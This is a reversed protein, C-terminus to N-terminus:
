ILDEDNECVKLQNTQKNLCECSTTEWINQRTKSANIVNLVPAVLAGQGCKAVVEQEKRYGLVVADAHVRPDYRISGVLSWTETPGLTLAGIRLVFPERIRKM